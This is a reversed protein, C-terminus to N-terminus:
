RRGLLLRAIALLLGILLGGRALGRRPARADAHPASPAAAPRTAEAAPRPEEVEERAAAAIDQAAAREEAAALALADALAPLDGPEDREVAFAPHHAFAAAMPSAAIPPRPPAWAEAEPQDLRVAETEVTPQDDAEPEPEAEPLRVAGTELTPQEEVAVEPEAGAQADGVAASDEADWKQALEELQAVLQDVRERAASQVAAGDGVREELRALARAPSERVSVESASAAEAAALEAGLTPVDAVVEMEVTPQERLAAKALADEHARRRQEGLKVMLARAADAMPEAQVAAGGGSRPVAVGWADDPLRALAAKVTAIVGAGELDLEAAIRAVARARRRALDFPDTRLVGAMAEFPLRRRLSLDLLARSGPDLGRVCMALEELSVSTVPAPSRIPFSAHISFANM